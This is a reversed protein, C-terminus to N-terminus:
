SDIGGVQKAQRAPVVVRNVRNRAEMSIELIGACYFKTSGSFYGSAANLSRVIENLNRPMIKLTRLSSTETYM